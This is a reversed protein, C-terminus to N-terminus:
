RFTIVRHRRTPLNSRADPQIQDPNRDLRNKENLELGDLCQVANM